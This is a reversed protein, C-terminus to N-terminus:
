EPVLFKQSYGASIELLASALGGFETLREQYDQTTYRLVVKTSDAKDQVDIVYPTGAVKSELSGKHEQKGTITSTMYSFHLHEWGNERYEFSIQQLASDEIELSFWQSGEKDRLVCDVAEGKYRFTVAPAGDLFAEEDLTVQELDAYSKHIQKGAAFVVSGMIFGCAAGILTDLNDAYQALVIGAATGGGILLGAALGVYHEVPVRREVRFGIESVDM